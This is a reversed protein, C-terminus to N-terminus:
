HRRFLAVIFSVSLIMLIIGGEPVPVFEKWDNGNWEWTDIPHSFGYEGSFFSCVERIPDYAMTMFGRAPTPSHDPHLLSWDNGNWEWTESDTTILIMKGHAADYALGGLMANTPYGATKLTWDAGDYTWTEAYNTNFVNNTSTILVVNNSIPDYQMLAGDGAAAPSHATIIKMWNTGDYEWTETGTESWGPGVYAITKKRTSDYAIEVDGKLGASLDNKQQWSTGNYEWTMNNTSTGPNKQGCLIIVGRETDLTGCHHTMAPSGAPPLEEWGLNSLSWVNSKSHWDPPGWGGHMVLSSDAPLFVFAYDINAYPPNTLDAFTVASFFLIIILFSQIIKM